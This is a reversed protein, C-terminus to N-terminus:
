RTMGHPELNDDIVEAEEEDLKEQLDDLWANYSDLAEVLDWVAGEEDAYPDLIDIAHPRKEKHLYGGQLYDSLGKFKARAEEIAEKTTM